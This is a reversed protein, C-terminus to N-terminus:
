RSSLLYADRWIPRRGPRELDRRQAPLPLPPLPYPNGRPFPADHETILAGLRQVADWGSHQEEGDLLLPLDPRGLDAYEGQWRDILRWADSTIPGGGIAVAYGYERLVDAESHGHLIPVALLRRLVDPNGIDAHDHWGSAFLLHRVHDGVGAGCAEAYAAVPPGPATAVTPQHWPVPEDPLAAARWQRELDALATHEADALPRAVVRITPHAAVARWEIPVGAGILADARASAIRSMADTFDAYITLTM